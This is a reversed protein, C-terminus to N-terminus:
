DCNRREDMEDATLKSLKSGFREARVHASTLHLSILISKLPFEIPKSYHHNRKLRAEKHQQLHHSLSYLFVRYDRWWRHSYLSYLVHLFSCFFVRFSFVISINQEAHHFPKVNQRHHQVNLFQWIILRDFLLDQRSLHPSIIIFSRRNVSKFRNNLRSIIRDIPCCSLTMCRNDTIKMFLGNRDINSISYSKWMSRIQCTNSRIKKM